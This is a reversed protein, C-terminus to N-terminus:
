VQNLDTKLYNGQLIQEARSKPDYNQSAKEQQNLRDRFAENVKRGEASPVPSVGPNDNNVIANPKSQPAFEHYDTQEFVQSALHKQKELYPNQTNVGNNPRAMGAETKWDANSGFAVKPMDNNYVIPAEEIYGGGFVSSQLNQYM